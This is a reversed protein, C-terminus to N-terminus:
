KGGEGDATRTRGIADMVSGVEAAGNEDTDDWGGHASFFIYIFNERIVSRGGDGVRKRPRFTLTTYFSHGNWGVTGRM